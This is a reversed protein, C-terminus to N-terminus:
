KSKDLNSLRLHRKFHLFFNCLNAKSLYPKCIPPTIKLFPLLLKSGLVDWIPSVFELNIQNLDM